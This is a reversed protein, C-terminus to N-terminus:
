FCLKCCWSLTAFFFCNWFLFKILSFLIWLSQFDWIEQRYMSKWFIQWLTAILVMSFTFKGLFYIGTVKWSISWHIITIWVLRLNRRCRFLLKFFQNVAFSKPRYIFPEEELNASSYYLRQFDSTLFVLPWKLFNFTAQISIM